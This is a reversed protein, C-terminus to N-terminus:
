YRGLLHYPVHSFKKPIDHHRNFCGSPNIGVYSQLMHCDCWTFSEPEGPKLNNYIDQKINNKISRKNSKMYAGSINSIEENEKIEVIEKKIDYDDIIETIFKQKNKIFISLSDSKIMYLETSTENIV